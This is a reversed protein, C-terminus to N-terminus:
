LASRKEGHSIGPSVVCIFFDYGDPTFFDLSCAQPM